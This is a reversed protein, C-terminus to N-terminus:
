HQKNWLVTLDVANVVFSMTTLPLSSLVTLTNNRTKITVNNLKIWSRDPHNKFLGAKNIRETRFFRFHDEYTRQNTNWTQSKFFIREGSVVILVSEEILLYRTSQVKHGEDFHFYFLFVFFTDFLMAFYRIKIQSASSLISMLLARNYKDFWLFLFWNRTAPEWKGRKTRQLKLM